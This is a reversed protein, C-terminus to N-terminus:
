DFQVFLAVKEHEVKQIPVLAGTRHSVDVATVATASPSPCALFFVPLHKSQWFLCRALRLAANNDAHVDTAFDGQERQLRDVVAVHGSASADILAANNDARRHRKM